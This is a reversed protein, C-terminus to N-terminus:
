TAAKKSKGKVPKEAKEKALKSQPKVEKPEKELPKLEVPVTDVLNNFLLEEAKSVFGKSCDLYWGRAELHFFPFKAAQLKTYMFDDDDDDFNLWTLVYSPLYSM